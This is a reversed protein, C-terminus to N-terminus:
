TEINVPQCLGTVRACERVSAIADSTRGTGPEWSPNLNEAGQGWSISSLTPPLPACGAQRGQVPNTLRSENGQRGTVQRDPFM